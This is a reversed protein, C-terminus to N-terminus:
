AESQQGTTSSASVQISLIWALTHRLLRYSRDSQQGVSSPLSSVDLFCLAFLCVRAVVHVAQPPAERIIITLAIALLTQCSANLFCLIPAARKLQLKTCTAVLFPITVFVNVVSCLWVPDKTLATMTNSGPTFSLAFSCLLPFFAVLCRTSMCSFPDKDEPCAASRTSDFREGRQRWPPDSSQIM